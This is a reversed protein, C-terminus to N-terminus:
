IGKLDKPPAEHGMMGSINGKDALTELPTVVDVINRVDVVTVLTDLTAYHFVSKNEDTSRMPKRKLAKGWRRPLVQDPHHHHAM